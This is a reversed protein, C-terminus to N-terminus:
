RIKGQDIAIGILASGFSKTCSWLKHKTKRDYGNFYEDLVLKGDRVILLADINNFSNSQIQSVLRTVLVTDIGSNSLTSIEWGDDVDKPTQYTYNVAEGCNNLLVTFAILKFLKKM